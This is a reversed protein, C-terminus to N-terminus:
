LDYGLDSGNLREPNLRVRVKALDRYLALDPTASALQAQILQHAAESEMEVYGGEGALFRLLLLGYEAQDEEDADEDIQPPPVLDRYIDAVTLPSDLDPAQRDMLQSVVAQHFHSPNKPRLTTM